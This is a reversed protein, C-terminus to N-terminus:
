KTLKVFEIGFVRGTDLTFGSIKNNRNRKFKLIWGDLFFMENRKGINLLQPEYNPIFLFLKKDDRVIGYEVNLEDSRFNGTYEDLENTPVPTIKSRARGGNTVLEIMNNDKNTILELEIGYDTVEAKNESTLSLPLSLGMYELYLNNHHDRIVLYSVPNERRFTGKWNSIDKIGPTFTDENVPDHVEIDSGTQIERKSTNDFFIIDAIKKVYNDVEMDSRNSLIILSTNKDPFRLYSSTFGPVKGGHGITKLGRYEDFELGFGYEISDNNTLFGKKHFNSSLYNGGVEKTYFNKDWLSLDSITTILNGDGTVENNNTQSVRFQGMKYKYGTAKMPIVDQYNDWFQTNYMQLPEFLHKNCYDRLSLGSVRRVIVALLLYGSNCYEFREGPKFNLAGQKSILKLGDDESFIDVYPKGTIQVLDAYDRLGSTHFLLNKITIVTGYDPMEPVWKRIDDNIGLKGNGSLLLIAAATIQKSVSGVNFRVDSTIERNWELSALGYCRKHTLDGNELIGIVCGPENPKIFTFLSDIQQLRNHGNSDAEYMSQGLTIISTMVFVASLIEKMFRYGTGKIGNINCIWLHILNNSTLM